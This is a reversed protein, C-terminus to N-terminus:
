PGRYKEIISEELNGWPIQLFRNWIYHLRYLFNFLELALDVCNKFLEDLNYSSLAM